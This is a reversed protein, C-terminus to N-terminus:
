ESELQILEEVVNGEIAQVVFPDVPMFGTLEPVTVLYLGPASVLVRYGNGTRGRTVVTGNHGQASVAPHWALDWPVSTGNEDLFLRMGMAPELPLTFENPGSLTVQVQQHTPRYAVDSCSILVAGVPVQFQFFGNTASGVPIAGAGPTGPPRVPAWRILSPTAVGTGDALVTQVSIDVPAPLEINADLLGDEGVQFLDGVGVPLVLIGHSGQKVQVPGWEWLFGGAMSTSVMSVSQVEITDNIPDSGPGTPRIRVSFNDLQWGEPIFVSGALDVREEDDFPIELDLELVDETTLEFSIEDFVEPQHAWHGSELTAIWSGPLLGELQQTSVGTVTVESHPSGARGQERLRLVVGERETDGFLRLSITGSQELSLEREGGAVLDVTIRRWEHGLARAHLAVASGISGIRGDLAVPSQQSVIRPDEPLAWGPHPLSSRSYDQVRIVEVDTLEEGTVASKLSLMTLADYRLIVRVVGAARSKIIGIPAVVRAPRNEIIAGFFQIAGEQPTVLQFRGRIVPISRSGALSGIQLHGSLQDLVETPADELMVEGNIRVMGDPLQSASAQNGRRSGPKSGQNGSGRSDAAGRSNSLPDQGSSTAGSEVASSGGTSGTGQNRFRTGTTDVASASSDEDSRGSGDTRSSTNAGGDRSSTGGEDFSTGQGSRTSPDQSPGDIEGSLPGDDPLFLVMATVIVLLITCAIILNRPNM